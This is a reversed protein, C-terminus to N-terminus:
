TASAMTVVSPQRGQKWKRARELDKESITEPWHEVAEGYRVVFFAALWPLYNHHVKVEAVGHTAAMQAAWTTLYLPITMTTLRAAYGRAREICLAAYAKATAEDMTRAAVLEDEIAFCRVLEQQTMTAVTLM